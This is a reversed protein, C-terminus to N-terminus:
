SDSSCAPCLGSYKLEYRDVTFCPSCLAEIESGLTGADFEVDYVKGCGRCFFHAHPETRADYHEMGETKGVTIIKGEEALVSLNRFVTGFSLEPYDPKLQNYLAEATPHATTRSLANLVAARKKSNNRKTEM